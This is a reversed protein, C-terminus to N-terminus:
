IANAEKALIEKELKALRRRSRRAYIDQKVHRFDLPIAMAYGLLLVLPYAIPVIYLIPTFYLEGNIHFVQLGPILYPYLWDLYPDVWTGPGVQFSSNFEPSNRSLVAIWDYHYLVLNLFVNNLYTIGMAGLLMLAVWPVRRYDLKHTGRAVMLVGGFLLPAHCFYFRGAEFFAAPNDLEGADLAGTPFFYVLVASYIGIYVLYDRGYNGFFRFAFPAVMVYLACFNEATSRAIGNPWAAMYSPVFQKLIHGALNIWYLVEVFGMTWKKGKKGCLFLLGALTGYLLVIPLFYLWNGVQVAVLLPLSAMM